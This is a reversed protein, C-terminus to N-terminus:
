GVNQKRSQKKNLNRKALGALGIGFLAMTTPEPTVTTNSECPGEVPCEFYELHDLSAESVSVGAVLLFFSFVWLFSRSQIV